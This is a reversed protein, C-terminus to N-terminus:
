HKLGPKKWSFARGPAPTPPCTEGFSLLFVRLNEKKNVIGLKGRLNKRHSEITRLSLGLLAAIEKSSSGQQILDAVRIEMPTLGASTHGLSKGIPSILDKIKSEIVATINRANKNLNQRKLKKVYPLILRKANYFVKEELEQREQDCKRLLVRLATNAEDLECTTRQLELTREKFSRELDDHAKQLAQEAKRIETMDVVESLIYRQGCVTIISASILGYRIEGSKRRFRYDFNLVIGHKELLRRMRRGAAPNAWIGLEFVTRGILEDRSYGSMSCESPNVDIFRGEEFTTIAMSIPSSEFALAFKEESQRLPTVDEIHAVVFSPKAFLFTASLNKRSNDPPIDVQFEQRVTGRKHFCAELCALIDPRGSLVKSAYAGLFGSIQSGFFEAAAYNYSVLVFDSESHQFSLVPLPGYQYFTRYRDWSSILDKLDQGRRHADRIFVTRIGKEDQCSIFHCMRKTGDRHTIAADRERLALPPQSAEREKLVIRRYAPDLYLKEIWTHINPIEAASYGTIEELQRNFILIKGGADHVLIGFPSSDLLHQLLDLGAAASKRPNAWDISAAQPSASDTCFSGNTSEGAM